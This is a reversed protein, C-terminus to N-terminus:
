GRRLVRTTGAAITTVLIWGCAILGYAVWATAGVPEFAAEQHLDVLPLLLDLTYIPARFHLPRAPDLPVPQAVAFVATGLLLLAVLWTAALAPRYGYGVTVDQLYGWLRGPRSQGTRRHRQGRLLVARRADEEGRRRYMAALQEYAQASYGDRNRALWNLRQAATAPSQITDYTLGDLRLKAPWTSPDDRLVGLRAHRLDVEGDIPESTSLVLEATRLQRCALTSEAVSSLSAREFCVQSGVDAFSLNIRGRATFGECCNFVGGVTIDVAALARGQPNDLRARLLRVSGRVDANDLRVEGECSLGEGRIDHGVSLLRAEVAPAGVLHAEDLVLAGEIRAAVLHLPGSRVEALRLNGEVVAKDAWIGPLRSGALDIERTRAGVLEIRDTFDCRSLRVPYPIEAYSLDLRGAIEAGVLTLAALEGPEAPVAGLLLARIVGARVVRDEADGLDVQARRSFAQWVAREPATLELEWGAM